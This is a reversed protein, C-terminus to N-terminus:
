ILRLIEFYNLYVLLLVFVFISVSIWLLRNGKKKDQKQIEQCIFLALLAIIPVPYFGFLALIISVIWIAYLLIELKNMIRIDYSSYKINDLFVGLSPNSAM